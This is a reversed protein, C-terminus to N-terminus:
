TQLDIVDFLNFYDNLKLELNSNSVLLEKLFKKDLRHWQFPEKLERPVLNLYCAIEKLSEEDLDNFHRELAERTDVNAVNSLAFM